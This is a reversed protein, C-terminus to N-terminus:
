EAVAENQAVWAERDEDPQEDCWDRCLVADSYHVFCGGWHWGAWIVRFREGVEEIHADAIIKAQPNLALVM